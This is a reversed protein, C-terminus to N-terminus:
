GSLWTQLRHFVKLLHEQGCCGLDECKNPNSNRLGSTEAQRGIAWTGQKPESVQGGAAPGRSWVRPLGHPEM